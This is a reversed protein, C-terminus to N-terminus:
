EKCMLVLFNKLDVLSTVPTLVMRMNYVSITLHKDDYKRSFWMSLSMNKDIANM